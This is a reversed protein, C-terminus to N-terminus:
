DRTAFLEKCEGTLDVYDLNSTGAYASCSDTLSDLDSSQLSKFGRLDLTRLFAGSHRALRLLGTAPLSENGFTKSLHIRQWLQGDFALERWEQSVRSLKVVERLGASKGVWRNEKAKKFSWQDGQVAAAHESSANQVVMEFIKLKVERPLLSDFKNPPQPPGTPEETALPVDSLVTLSEMAPLYCSTNCSSPSSPHATPSFYISSCEIPRGTVVISSPRSSKLLSGLGDSSPSPTFIPTTPASKAFRDQLRSLQKSKRKIYRFSLKAPAEGPVQITADRRELKPRGLTFGSLSLGRGTNATRSRTSLSQDVASGGNVDVDVVPAAHDEEVTGEGVVAGRAVLGM